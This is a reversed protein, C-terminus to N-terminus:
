LLTPQSAKKKAAKKAPKAVAPGGWRALYADVDHKKATNLSSMYRILGFIPREPGWPRDYRGFVWFIGSWSNPDRGDLAFRNNLDIVHDLATRPDPSWEIIKKGWLMRLYNQITGEERLQRQAANWLPDHTESRMLQERSYVHERTDNEHQLLTKQAWDPLSEFRDHDPRRSTMNFGLERWTIVQDLFGEAAPSLGWWGVRSGSSHRGAKDPSWGEKRLVADVVQWSSLHGWHLWPSVGSVADVDPSSRELYLALKRDIFEGLRRNAEESGGQMDVPAVSHDIPLGQLSAPSGSFDTVAPWRLLVSTPLAVPSRSSTPLSATPKTTLHKPLEKQLFRRFAFATPFVQDGAARLPLVGNSDVDECRVSFRAATAKVMQPLFFCPWDDAVVVCADKALAEVLGSGAGAAPEVYPHYAIGAAAFARANDAMGQVVFAHFRDSAWRHGCRLAEVVVLPRNLAAAHELARDLAFNWSTRRAATMWYLVWKGGPRVPADNLVRIRLDPVM